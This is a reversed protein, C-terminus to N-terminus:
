GGYKKEHIETKIVDAMEVVYDIIKKKNSIYLAMHISKLKNISIIKRAYEVDVYSLNENDKHSHIIGMFFIDQRNWEKIIKNLKIVDPIYEDGLCERDFFFTTVKDEYGGLIGGSENIRKEFCQKILEIVDVSIEM